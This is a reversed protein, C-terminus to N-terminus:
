KMCKDAYKQCLSGLYFPVSMEKGIPSNDGHGFNHLHSVEHCYTNVMQPMARPNKRTNLYFSTKDSAYTTAIAASFPNKTKYTRVYKPTFAKVAEVVQSTNLETHTFKDVAALDNILEPLQIVCSAVSSADAVWKLSSKPVFLEKKVTQPQGTEISAIPDPKILVQSCSILLLLILNKM